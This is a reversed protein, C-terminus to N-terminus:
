RSSRARRRERSGLFPQLTKHVDARTWRPRWAIVPPARFARPCLHLLTTLTLPSSSNPRTTPSAQKHLYSLEFIEAHEQLESLAWAGLTYRTPDGARVQTTHGEEFTVVIEREGIFSEITHWTANAVSSGFPLLDDMCATTAAVADEDQHQLHSAPLLRHLDAGSASHSGQVQRQQPLRGTLRAHDTLMKAVGDHAYLSRLTEARVGKEPPAAQLLRCYSANQLLHKPDLLARIAAINATSGFRLAQETLGQQGSIPLSTEWNLAEPELPLDTWEPEACDRHYLYGSVIMDVPERAFHVVREYQKPEWDLPLGAPYYTVDQAACREYCTESWVNWAWASADSAASNEPCCLQALVDASARTGSKHHAVVTIPNAIPALVALM